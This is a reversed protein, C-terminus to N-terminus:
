FHSTCALNPLSDQPTYKPVLKARYLHALRQNLKTKQFQKGKCFHYKRRVCIYIISNIRSIVEIKYQPWLLGFIRFTHPFMRFPFRLQLPSKCTSHVIYCSHYLCSYEKLM